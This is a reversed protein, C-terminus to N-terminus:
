MLPPSSWHQFGSELSLRQPAGSGQLYVELDPTIQGIIAAGSELQPLLQAAAQPPLSLVLEFDEGGYLAWDQAQLPSLSRTRFLAPHIPIQDQALIAGVQSARCLQVVADALGDSSDMGAITGPCICQRLAQLVDFRPVPRQHAQLLAARDSPNLDGGWTPHLLLELGARSAGHWGTALLVHGPQARHRLIAGQDPVEGLATISVTITPSRVVDGGWIVGGYTQLCDSLGMYVEQLWHQSLGPPLGLGVTLGLPSAGMAALDSLNVAASRWGVDRASTTRDSFHVGEVLVDTTIVLQHGPNPTLLAADDGIIHAPCFGQLLALVGQEGLDGVTLNSASAAM